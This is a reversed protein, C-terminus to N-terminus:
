KWRKECPEDFKNQKKLDNINYSKLLKTKYVHKIMGVDKKQYVDVITDSKSECYLLDLEDYKGVYKRFSTSDTIYVYIVDTTTAGGCYCRYEEEYVNKSLEQTKFHKNEGCDGYGCGACLLSLSLFSLITAICPYKKMM